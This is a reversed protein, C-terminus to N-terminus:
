RLLGNNNKTNCFLLNIIRNFAGNVFFSVAEIDAPTVISFFLDETERPTPQCWAKDVSVEAKM